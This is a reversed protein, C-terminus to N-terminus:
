KYVFPVIYFKDDEKLGKILECHRLVVFNTELDHLSINLRRAVEELTVKGKCQVLDYIDKQIKTLGASGEYGMRKRIRTALRVAMPDCAELTRGISLCCDDCLAEGAYTHHVDGPIEHGCRNCRM